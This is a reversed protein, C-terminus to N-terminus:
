TCALLVHKSASLVVLEPCTYNGCKHLQFQLIVGSSLKEDLGLILQLLFSQLDTKLGLGSSSVQSQKTIVTKQVQRSSCQLTSILCLRLLSRGSLWILLLARRELFCSEMRRM